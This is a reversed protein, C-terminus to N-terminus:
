KKWSKDFYQEILGGIIGLPSLINSSKSKEGYTSTSKNDQGYPKTLTYTTTSISSYKGSDTTSFENSKKNLNESKAYTVKSEGLQETQNTVATIKEGTGMSGGSVFEKEQVEVKEAKSYDQNSMFKEPNEIKMAANDLINKDTGYAVKDGFMKDGGLRDYNKASGAGLKDATEQSLTSKGPVYVIAGTKNNVFWDYVGMGDPDIFYVPNNM